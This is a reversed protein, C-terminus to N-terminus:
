VVELLAICFLHLLHLTTLLLLLLGYVSLLSLPLGESWGDVVIRALYCLGSSDGVDCLTSFLGGWTGYGGTFVRCDGLCTPTNRHDGFGLRSDRGRHGCM